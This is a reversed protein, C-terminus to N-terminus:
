TISAGSEAERGYQDEEECKRPGCQDMNISVGESFERSKGKAPADYSERAKSVVFKCGPGYPNCSTTPCEQSDRLFQRAM